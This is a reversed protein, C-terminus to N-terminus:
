LCLNWTCLSFTSLHFHLVHYSLILIATFELTRIQEKKTTINAMRVTMLQTNTKNQVMLYVVKGVQSGGYQLLRPAINGLVAREALKYLLYIKFVLNSIPTDRVRSMYYLILLESQTFPTQEEVRSKGAM